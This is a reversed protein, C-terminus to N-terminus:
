FFTFPALFLTGFFSSFALISMPKYGNVLLDKAIIGGISYCIASILILINGSFKGGGYSSIIVTLCILSLILGFVKYKNITENLFIFALIVTFAPGISQIFGTLYASTYQLGINQLITPLTVAFLGLLGGKKMSMHYGHEYFFLLILFLISAILYRLFALLIPSVSELANKTIPFSTGWLASAMTAYLAIQFKEM